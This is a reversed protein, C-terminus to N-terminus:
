KRKAKANDIQALLANVGALGAQGKEVMSAFYAKQKTLTSRKHRVTRPVKETIELVTDNKITRIRTSM